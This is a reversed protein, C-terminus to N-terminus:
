KAAFLWYFLGVLIIYEALLGDVLVNKLVIYNIVVFFLVFKLDILCRVFFQLINHFNFRKDDVTRTLWRITKQLNM